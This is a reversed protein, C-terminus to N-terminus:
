VEYQSQMRQGLCRFYEKPKKFPHVSVSTAQSCDESHWKKNKKEGEPRDAKCAGDTTIDFAEAKDVYHHDLCRQVFVDEGWSGFKWDCGDNECPAFQAHCDELQDTLVQAATKSMVELNGFYGYQVNKCNEFYVGHPTDHQKGVFDRLRQPIFVADADAKIVYDGQRWKGVERVKVWVQYFLAWNVWAGTEKRKVQHFENNVDEVKVTTYGPGVPVSVDSFV